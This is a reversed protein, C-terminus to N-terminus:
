HLIGFIIKTGIQFQYTVIKASFYISNSFLTKNHSLYCNERWFLDNHNSSLLLFRRFKHNILIWLM